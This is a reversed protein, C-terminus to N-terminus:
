LFIKFLCISLFFLNFDHEKEREKIRYQRRKRKKRLESARRINEKESVRM